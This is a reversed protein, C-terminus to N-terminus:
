SIVTVADPQVPSMEHYLLSKDLESNGEKVVNTLLVVEKEADHVSALVPQTLKGPVAVTVYPQVEMYLVFDPFQFSIVTHDHPLNGSAVSGICIAWVTVRLALPVM